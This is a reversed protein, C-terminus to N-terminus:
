AEGIGECTRSQSRIHHHWRQNSSSLRLVVTIRMSVALWSRGVSSRDDGRVGAWAILQQPTTDSSLDCYAIRRMYRIRHLQILDGKKSSKDQECEAANRECRRPKSCVFRMFRDVDDPQLQRRDCNAQYRQPTRRLYNLGAQTQCAPQENPLQQHRLESLHLCCGWRKPVPKPVPCTEEIMTQARQETHATPVRTSRFRNRGSDYIGYRRLSTLLWCISGHLGCGNSLMRTPRPPRSLTHKSNTYGESPGTLVSRDGVSVIRANNADDKSAIQMPHKLM